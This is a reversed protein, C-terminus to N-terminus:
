LLARPLNPDTSGVQRGLGAGTQEFQALQRLCGAWSPHLQSDSAFGPAEGPEGKGAVGARGTEEKCLCKEKVVTSLCHSPTARSLGAAGGWRKSPPGWLARGKSSSESGKREKPPSRGGGRGGGLGLTEWPGDSDQSEPGSLNSPSTNPQRFAPGGGPQEGALSINEAGM